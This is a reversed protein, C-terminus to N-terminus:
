RRHKQTIIWTLIMADDSKTENKKTFQKRRKIEDKMSNFYQNESKSLWVYISFRFNPIFLNTKIKEEGKKKNRLFCM